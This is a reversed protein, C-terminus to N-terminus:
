IIKALIYHIVTGTKTFPVRINLTSTKSAVSCPIYAGNNNIAEVKLIVTNNKSFGTPYNIPIDVNAEVDITINGKLMSLIQVNSSYTSLGNSLFPTVGLDGTYDVNNVILKSSAEKYDILLDWNLLSDGNANSGSLGDIELIGTGCCRVFKSINTEKRCNNMIVSGHIKQIDLKRILEFWCDSVSVSSRIACIGRQWYQISCNDVTMQLCNRLYLGTTYGVYEEPMIAGETPYLANLTEPTYTIYPLGNASSGGYHDIFCDKIGVNNVDKYGMIGYNTTFTATKVINTCWNAQLYIGINTGIVAVDEILSVPCSKLNIGGLVPKTQPNKNLIIIGKIKIGEMRDYHSTTTGPIIDNINGRRNGNDDFPSGDFVFGNANEFDALIVSGNNLFDINPNHYNYGFSSEGEITIYPPIYIPATVRTVGKPITLKIFKRGNWSSDKSGKWYFNSLTDIINQIVMTDDTIGDCKAGFNKISIGTALLNEINTDLNKIKEQVTTKGDEMYTVLASTVPFIPEKNKNLLQTIKGFIM